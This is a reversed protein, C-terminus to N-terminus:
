INSKITDVADSMAKVSIKIRELDQKNDEYGLRSLAYMYDSFYTNLSKFDNCLSTLKAYIEYFYDSDGLNEFKCFLLENYLVKLKNCFLRDTEEFFSDNKLEGSLKELKKVNSRFAQIEKNVDSRYQAILAPLSPKPQPNVWEKFRNMIGRTEQKATFPLSIRSLNVTGGADNKYSTYRFTIISQGTQRDYRYGTYTFHEKEWNELQKIVKESENGITPKFFNTLLSIM